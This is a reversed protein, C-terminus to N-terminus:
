RASTSKSPLEAILKSLDSQPREAVLPASSEIKSPQGEQTESRPRSKKVKKKGFEEELERPPNFTDEFLPREEKGENEKLADSDPVPTVPLDSFVDISTFTRSAPLSLTAMRPAELTPPPSDGTAAM